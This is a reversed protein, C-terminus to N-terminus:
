CAIHSFKFHQKVSFFTLPTDDILQVHIFSIAHGCKLFAHTSTSLLVLYRLFMRPNGRKADFDARIKMCKLM